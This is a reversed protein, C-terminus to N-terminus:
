VGVEKEAALRRARLFAELRMVRDRLWRGLAAFVALLMFGAFPLTVSSLKLPLDVPVGWLTNSALLERVSAILCIAFAFGICYSLGDLLAHPLPNKIAFKETRHFMVSNFIMLSFYMGMSDFINPAILGVLKAAPILMFSAIFVYMPIRLWLPLRERVLAAALISPLTVLLMTISLAVGNKLSTSAVVVPAILLGGVLM